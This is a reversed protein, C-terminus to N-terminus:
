LFRWFCRKSQTEIIDFDRIEQVMRFVKGFQPRTFYQKVRKVLSKAKGVYIITGSSDKMQYSGPKDPLLDIKEKLVPYKLYSFTPDM